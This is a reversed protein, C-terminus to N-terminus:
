GINYLTSMAEAKEVEFNWGTPKQSSACEGCVFEGGQDFRDERALTLAVYDTSVIRLGKNIHYILYTRRGRM